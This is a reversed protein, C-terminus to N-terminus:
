SCQWVGGSVCPSSGKSKFTYKIAVFCAGDDSFGARHLSFYAHIAHEKEGVKSLLNRGRIRSRPRHSETM